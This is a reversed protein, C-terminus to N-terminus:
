GQLPGVARVTQPGRCPQRGPFCPRAAREARRPRHGQRRDDHHALRGSLLWCQEGQAGRQDLLQSVATWRGSQGTPGVGGPPGPLSRPSLSGALIPSTRLRVCARSGVQPLSLCSSGAKFPPGLATRPWRRLNVCLQHCVICLFSRRVGLGAARSRPEATASSNIRNEWM